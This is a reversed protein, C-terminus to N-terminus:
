ATVLDSKVAETAIPARFTAHNMATTALVLAAAGGTHLLTVEVPLDLLVNAVGLAMQALALAAVAFAARGFRGRGRGIAAAVLALTVVGYAVLRHLVQLGVLGSLTPFWGDANCGPWTSCALGAGSSAVLGGLAVQALVLGALAPALARAGPVEVRESPSAAEWLELAIVAILASFLNGCVLHSAVTWEALLHLVTLGGLVIQLGLAAAAAAFWPALRARLDARRLVLFGLAVFAISEGGAYVRHGFELFVPWDIAPVLLGFCRPWDPCALGAGNVRVSAGFVLLVWVSASLLTAGRALPVVEARGGRRGSGIAVAASVAAVLAVIVLLVLTRVDHSM